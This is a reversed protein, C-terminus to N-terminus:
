IFIDRYLCVYLCFLVSKIFKILFILEYLMFAPSSEDEPVKVEELCFREDKIARLAGCLLIVVELPRNQKKAKKEM